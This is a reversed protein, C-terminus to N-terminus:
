GFVHQSSAHQPITKVAQGIFINQAFEPMSRAHFYSVTFDDDGMESVSCAHAGEASALAHVRGHPERGRAAQHHAGAGSIQVGPTM